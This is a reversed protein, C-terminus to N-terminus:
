KHIKKLIKNNVMEVVFAKEGKNLGIIYTFFLCSLGNTITVLTLRYFGENLLIHCMFPIVFSLVGVMSIPLIVRSLYYFFSMKVQHNLIYVGSFLQFSSFVILVVFAIYAPEGMKLLIWTVPIQVISLLSTILQYNRINGTAHVLHSLSPFLVRFLYSLLVLIVFLGTEDPIESGLWIRLIYGVELMVPVALIYFVYFCAKSSSVMLQISKQEEGRAYSQVLQPRVAVSVNSVFGHIANSVQYAIGRAANVIPGFFLNLVMNVGQGRITTAFTGFLNWGSFSLMKGFLVKDFTKIIKVENFRHKAYSVSWLLNFLSIALLLISYVILKDYPFYPLTIVITLKLVTDAIGLIAYFDMREHAIIASTYPVQVVVIILSLVASHFVWLAATVREDPIVMKEYIYWLGITETLILIIAALLLQIAISTVFVKNAGNEGNKGLEYNYFRQIGNTLAQKLFAFMTVFGAVVNYVGFDVVGLVNLTVRSTYLSVLLVFIMRFTLFITNRAIVSKGNM